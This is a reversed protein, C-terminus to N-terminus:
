STGNRRALYAPAAVVIATSAGAIKVAVMDRELLSGYRIGADFGQAVIDVM